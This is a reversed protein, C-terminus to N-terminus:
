LWGFLAGIAVFAIQAGVYIFLCYKGCFTIPAFYKENIAGFLTCKEKYLLKSCMAGILFWGMAPFLVLYDGTSNAPLTNNEVFISQFHTLPEKIPQNLYLYGVVLIAVALTVLCCYIINKGNQNLKSLVFDILAWLLVCLAIVHIVNFSITM